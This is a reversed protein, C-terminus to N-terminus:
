DRLTRFPNPIILPVTDLYKQYAPDGGYRGKALETAPTLSGQVQAHFLNWMFLPGLAALGLRWCASIAEWISAGEPIPGILAPANMVFIGGWLLLNGFFNPQQSISWLGVNCFTGHGNDAKFRWKQYDALTEIILGAAYMVSGSYLAVPNGPDSSTMGLLNPLSCVVGWLLSIVWFGVIPPVTFLLFKGHLHLSIMLPFQANSYQGFVAM